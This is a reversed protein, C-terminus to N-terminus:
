DEVTMEVEWFGGAANEGDGPDKMYYGEVEVTEGQNAEFVKCADETSNITRGDIKEIYDDKFIDARAAPSGEDVSRVLVGVGKPDVTWGLEPLVKTIEELPIGISILGLGTYAVDGKKLLPLMRKVREVALSYNQNEQDQNGFTNVGVLDGKENVLPGGSHGKNVPVSHQVVEEYRPDASGTETAVTGDVSVTGTNSVLKTEASSGAQLTGPYGLVTIQDGAKLEEASGFEIVETDEFPKELRLLAMDECPAMGVITASIAGETESRVRLNGNNGEVVHYNTLVHGEDDVVIGTGGGPGDDYEVLVQLTSLRVKDIIDQESLDGGGCGAALAALTGVALITMFKLSATVERGPGVELPSRQPGTRVGDGHEHDACTSLTAEQETYRGCSVM